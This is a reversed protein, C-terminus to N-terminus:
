SRMSDERCYIKGESPFNIKRERRGLARILANRSSAPNYLLSCKCYEYQITLAIPFLNAHVLLVVPDRKFLISM